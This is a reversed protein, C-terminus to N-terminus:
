LQWASALQEISMQQAASTVGPRTVSSVGLRRESVSPPPLKTPVALATRLASGFMTSFPRPVMTKIPFEVALRIPM